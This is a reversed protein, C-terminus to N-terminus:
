LNSDRLVKARDSFLVGNLHDIEHQVIRAEFDTVTKEYMTGNIDMTNFVVSKHRTVFGRQTPVSLCGEEYESTEESKWLIEPNIVITKPVAAADPYRPNSDFGYVFVRESVGIQPASLGVGNTERMIKFMRQILQELKDNGFETIPKAIERLLSATKANDHITIVQSNM